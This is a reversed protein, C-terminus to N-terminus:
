NCYNDLLLLVLYMDDIVALTSGWDEEHNNVLRYTSVSFGMTVRCTLSFYLVSLSHCIQFLDM